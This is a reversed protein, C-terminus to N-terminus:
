GLYFKKWRKELENTGKFYYYVKALSDSVSYGKKLYDLLNSFRYRGYKSLLFNVISFSELYFLNVYDQNANNLDATNIKDLDTLKIYEDNKLKERLFSFNYKTGGHKFGMYTAVGEELWLPLKDKGIYERFIIHTLEHALVVKFGPQNAFTYIIKQHYNVCASAWSSCKFKKAYSDKDKAIFIKARKQWLWLEDRILHFDQTIIRYFKEAMGKVKSAYHEAVGQEYNIIFHQGRLEVFDDNVGNGSSALGRDNVIGISLSFILLIIFIRL